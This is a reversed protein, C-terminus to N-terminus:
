WWARGTVETPENVEHGDVAVVRYPADAWARTPGNDTNVVRM